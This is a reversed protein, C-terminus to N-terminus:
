KQSGLLPGHTPKRRAHFFFLMAGVYAIVMIGIYSSGLLIGFLEPDSRGANHFELASGPVARESMVISLEVADRVQANSVLLFVSCFLTFLTIVIWTMLKSLQAGILYATVLMAFVISAYHMMNTVLTNMVENFLYAYEYDTM